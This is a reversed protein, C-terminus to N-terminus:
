YDVSVFLDNDDPDISNLATTLLTLAEHDRQDWDEGDIADQIIEKLSELDRYIYGGNPLNFCCTFFHGIEWSDESWLVSREIISAQNDPNQGINKHRFVWSTCSM